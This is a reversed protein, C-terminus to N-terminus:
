VPAGAPREWVGTASAARAYELFGRPPRGLVRRVDDTLHANRGDLVTDFLSAFDAPLGHSVLYARYADLSVPVFRIDRGTVESLVTAVEGFSLLEPGTLEYTAGIHRDDTLAATAVEAIDGADIFPEGVEGAPLVLEGARVPELFFDTDFNQHFWSARLITWDAGSDQLARESLQAGDEGRGSLLVLRRTGSAVAFRAFDGIAEAAGPFSLDPYFTVYAARAGALAAGWTDRDEWVFPPTGSRSGVRVPLGHATLQEVVRRGTKGTGGIVLTTGQDTQKPNTM